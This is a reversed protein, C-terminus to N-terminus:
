LTVTQTAVINSGKEESSKVFRCSCFHLVLSLIEHGQLRGLMTEAPLFCTMGLLYFM